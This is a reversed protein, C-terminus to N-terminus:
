LTSEIRGLIQVDVAATSTGGVRGVSGSAVSEGMVNRDVRTIVDTGHPLQVPDEHPDHASM